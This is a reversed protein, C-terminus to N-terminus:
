YLPKQRKGVPGRGLRLSELIRSLRVYAHCTHYGRAQRQLPTCSPGRLSTRSTSHNQEDETDTQSRHSPEDHNRHVLLTAPKSAVLCITRRSMGWLVCLLISVLVASSKAPLGFVCNPHNANFVCQTRVAAISPAHTQATASSGAIVVDDEHINQALVALFLYFGNPM